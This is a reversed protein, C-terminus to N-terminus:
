RFWNGCWGKLSSDEQQDSSSRGTESFAPAVLSRSESGASIPSPPLSEQTNNDNLYNKIDGLKIGFKQEFKFLEFVRDLYEAFVRTSAINAMKPIDSLKEYAIVIKKIEDTEYGLFKMFECVMPNTISIMGYGLLCILAATILTLASTQLEEPFIVYIQEAGFGLSFFTMTVSFINWAWTAKPYCVEALSPAHHGQILNKAGLYIGSVSGNIYLFSLYFVCIISFIAFIYFAADADDFMAQGAGGGGYWYLMLLYALLLTSILPMFVAEFRNLKSRSIRQEPFNHLAYLTKMLNINKRDDELLDMSGLTSILTELMEQSKGDLKNKNKKYEIIQQLIVAIYNNFKQKAGEILKEDATLERTGYAKCMMQYLSWWTYGMNSLVLLIPYGINKLMYYVYWAPAIQGGVSLTGAAGLFFARVAPHIESKLIDCMEVSRPQTLERLCNHLPITTLFGNTIGNGMVFFVKLVDKAQPSIDLRKDVFQLSWKYYLFNGSFGVLVTLGFLIQRAIRRRKSEPANINEMLCKWEWELFAVEKENLNFNVAIGAESQIPQQLPVM